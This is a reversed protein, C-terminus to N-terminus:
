SYKRSKSLVKNQIGDSVNPLKCGGTGGAGLSGRGEEPRRPCQTCVCMYVCWLTVYVCLYLYIKLFIAWSVTNKEKGM